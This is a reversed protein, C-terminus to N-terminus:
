AQPRWDTKGSMKALTEFPKRFDYQVSRVNLVRNSLVIELFEKREQPARSLWLTKASTALELISKATELYAGEIAKRAEGMLNLIQFREEKIRENQRRYQDEDVVKSVYLDFIGDTKQDLSKLAREFGELEKRHAEQRKLHCENLAYAMDKAFEDTISVRDFTEKFGEWLAEETITMGKMTTHTRKGNTCHYYHFIRVEGTGKIKKTKPDYVVSCGCEACKLWGANFSGKAQTVRRYPQRNGFTEDVAALIEAPM